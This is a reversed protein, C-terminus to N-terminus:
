QVLEGVLPRIVSSSMDRSQLPISENKSASFARLSRIFTVIGEQQSDRSGLMSKEVNASQNTCQIGPPHWSSRAHESNRVVQGCTQNNFARAHVVSLILRVVAFRM